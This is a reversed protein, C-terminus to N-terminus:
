RLITPLYPILLILLILGVGFKIPLSIFLLNVQPMIRAFIALSVDILLIVLIFPITIQLGILFLFTAIELLYPGIYYVNGTGLPVIEFSKILGNLLIKEGGIGLFILVGLTTLLNNSLVSNQQQTSADVMNAFSLSTQYSILSGALDLGSFIIQGTFGLAVGILIERIVIISIELISM